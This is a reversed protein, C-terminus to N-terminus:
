EAAIWGQEEFKPRLEKAILDATRKGSARITESGTAEGALKVAGGVALGIPNATAITVALPVILGPSSGRSGSDIEGSGLRRLGQETMLYGEVFTKLDAAGSGFGVLVRKTASGQDISVFYGRIVLEGPRPPPQDIARVGPLGMASIQDALQKAVEAGLQRGAELAEETPPTEPTSIQQALPSDPPIDDLTSGFDYVLIRDPRAIKEDGVNSEREVVKTSSCASSALLLLSGLAALRLWNM